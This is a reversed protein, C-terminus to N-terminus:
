HIESLMQFREESDWYDELEQDRKEEQEEKYRAFLEDETLLDQDEIEAFAHRKTKHIGYENRQSHGRGNRAKNGLRVRDEYSRKM